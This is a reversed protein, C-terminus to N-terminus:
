NNLAYQIALNVATMMFGTSIRKVPKKEDVILTNVTGSHNLRSKNAVVLFSLLDLLVFFTLGVGIL